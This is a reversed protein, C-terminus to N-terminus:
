WNKLEPCGILKAGSASMIFSLVAGIMFLLGFGVLLAIGKKKVDDTKVEGSSIYSWAWGAIFFAAGIFAAIRLINFVTHLKKFLECFSSADLTKPEDAFAPVSAMIAIMAMNIKNMIKKM